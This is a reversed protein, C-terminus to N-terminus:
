DGKDKDKDTKRIDFDFAGTMSAVQGLVEVLMNGFFVDDAWSAKPRFVVLFKYNGSGESMRM